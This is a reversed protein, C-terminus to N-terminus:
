SSFACMTLVELLSASLCELKEVFSYFCVLSQQHFLFKGMEPRHCQYKAELRQFGQATIPNKREM